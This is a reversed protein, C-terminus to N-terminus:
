DRYRRRISEEPLPAEMHVRYRLADRRYRLLTEKEDAKRLEKSKMTHAFTRMYSHQDNYKDEVRQLKRKLRAYRAPSM